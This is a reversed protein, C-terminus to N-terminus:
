HATKDLQKLIKRSRAKFGASSHPYQEEILFRLEKSLETVKKSINHIVTMSFVKVAVSEDGSSLYKFCQDVAHDWSAEPLEQDQLIRLINRKYWGPLGIDLTNVMRPLQEQIWGSRNKRLELVILTAKHSLHFNGSFFCEMLETFHDKSEVFHTLIDPNKHPHHTNLLTTEM